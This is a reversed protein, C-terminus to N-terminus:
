KKKREYRLSANATTKSLHCKICMKQLNELSCYMRNVYENWDGTFSGVEEIHDIEIEEERFWDKCKNCQYIYLFKQKGNKYEGVRKLKRGNKLCKKRIHWTITGHRLVNLIHKQTEKDM